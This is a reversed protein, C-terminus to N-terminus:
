DDLSSKEGAEEADEEEATEQTPIKYDERFWKILDINKCTKSCFPAYTKDAHKQCIPCPM